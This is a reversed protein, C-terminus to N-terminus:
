WCYAASLWLQGGRAAEIYIPVAFDAYKPLVTIPNPLFMRWDASVSWAGKIHVDIGAGFTLDLDRKYRQVSVPQFANWFIGIDFLHIRVWETKFVDTLLNLGFGNPIVASVELALPTYEPLRLQGALRLTFVSTTPRWYDDYGILGVPGGGGAVARIQFPDLGAQATSPSFFLAMSLFVASLVTSRAGM